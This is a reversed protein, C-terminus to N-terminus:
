CLHLFNLLCYKITSSVLLSVGGDRFVKLFFCRRRKTEPDRYTHLDLRVPTGELDEAGVMKDFSSVCIHSDKGKMPQFTKLAADFLVTDSEVTFPSKCEVTLPSVDTDSLHEKPPNEISVECMIKFGVETASPQFFVSKAGGIKEWRTGISQGDNNLGISKSRYWQYAYGLSPCTTSESNRIVLVSTNTLKPPNRRFLNRGARRKDDTRKGDENHGKRSAYFDERLPICKGSSTQLFISCIEPRQKSIENAINRPCSPEEIISDTIKAAAAEKMENEKQIQQIENVKEKALEAAKRSLIAAEGAFHSGWRQLRGKIVAGTDANTHKNNHADEDSTEDSSEDSSDDIQDIQQFTLIIPTPTARISNLISAFDQEMLRVGDVNDGPIRILISREIRTDCTSSSYDDHSSNSTDQGNSSTDTDRCSEPSIPEKETFDNNLDADSNNSISQIPADQSNTSVISIDRLCSSAEDKEEQPSLENKIDNKAVSDNSLCSMFEGNSNNKDARVLNEKDKSDDTMEAYRQNTEFSDINEDSADESISDHTKKEKIETSTDDSADGSDPLLASKKQDIDVSKEVNTSDKEKERNGPLSQNGTPDGLHVDNAANMNEESVGIEEPYEQNVDESNSKSQVGNENTDLKKSEGEDTSHKDINAEGSNDNSKNINLSNCNEFNGCSANGSIYDNKKPIVDKYSSIVAGTCDSDNFPLLVLRTQLDVYNEFTLSFTSSEKSNTSLEDLSSRDDMEVM